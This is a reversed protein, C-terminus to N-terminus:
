SCNYSIHDALNHKHLYKKGCLACEFRPGEEHLREHRTKDSQHKFLKDCIRCKFIKEKSHTSKHRVLCDKRSFRTGCTRCRFPKQGSHVPLHQIISSKHNFMKGCVACEFCAVETHMYREHELKHRNHKFRTDCMGCKYPRKESHSAQHRFLGQKTAFQKKCKPCVFPKKHERKHLRLVSKDPFTEDCINCCYPPSDRMLVGRAKKPASNSTQISTDVSPLDKKKKASRTIRGEDGNKRRKSCGASPSAQGNRQCTDLEDDCNPQQATVQVQEMRMTQGVHAKIFQENTSNAFTDNGRLQCNIQPSVSIGNAVEDDDLLNLFEDNTAKTLDSFCNQLDESAPDELYQVPPANANHLINNPNEACPLLIIFNTNSTNETICNTNTSTEISAVNINGTDEAINQATEVLAVEDSFQELQEESNHLSGRSKELLLIFSEACRYDETVKEIFEVLSAQASDESFQKFVDDSSVELPPMSSDTSYGDETIKEVSEELAVKESHKEPPRTNKNCPDDNSKEPFLTTLRPHQQTGEVGNIATEVLPAEPICSIAKPKESSYISLRRDRTNEAINRDSEAPIVVPESHQESLRINTNCPDDHSKELLSPSLSQLQHNDKVVNVATEVFAVKEHHKTPLTKTICFSDESKESSYIALRRDRTDEAINGDIEAPVVFYREDLREIRERLEAVTDELRSCRTRLRFVESRFCKTQQRSQKVKLKRKLALKKTKPPVDDDYKNTIDGFIRRFQKNSADITTNSQFVPSYIANKSANKNLTPNSFNIFNASSQSSNNISPEFGHKLKPQLTPVSTPKLLKRQISIRYDDTKFHRDCLLFHPKIMDFALDCFTAWQQRTDIDSPFSFFENASVYGCVICVDKNKKFLEEIETEMEHPVRRFSSPRADDKFQRLNHNTFQHSASHCCGNKHVRRASEEKSFNNLLNM